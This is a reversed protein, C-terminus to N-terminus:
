RAEELWTRVDEVREWESEGIHYGCVSCDHAFSWFPRTHAVVADQVTGCKPCRIREAHHWLDIIARM